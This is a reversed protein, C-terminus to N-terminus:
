KLQELMLKNADPLIIDNLYLKMKNQIENNNILNKLILSHINVNFDKEEILITANLDSLFKANSFQHNYISDPIPFIISPIQFKILDNITGAGGRTIAINTISLIENINIFFEKLEYEIKLDKLISQLSIFMTKPSQIFLKINKITELDFQNIMDIFFDIVRTSGQSGGYVFIITKQQFKKKKILKSKLLHNSPLGVHLLKNDFKSKLNTINKFNSFLLNSYPIFYNNVKGLVSNQEHIFFNIKIFKKLIMICISPMLVAYSGFSICFKPNHKLIFYFSQFFGLILSLVGKLNQTKTGSLHSSNIVYLQGTFSELYKAGRKDIIISCQKGRSILFNAFNLAPIVHGGTGGTFILVKNNM